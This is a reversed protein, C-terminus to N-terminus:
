GSLGGLSRKAAVYASYYQRYLAETIQGSRQLSLLAAPVSQGRSLSSPAISSRGPPSQSADAPLASLAGLTLMGLVLAWLHKARVARIGRLVTIAAAATRAAPPRQLSPM